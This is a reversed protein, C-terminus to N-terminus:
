ASQAANVLAEALKVKVQVLQAFTMRDFTAGPFCREAFTKVRDIDGKGMAILKERLESADDKKETREGYLKDTYVDSAIQDPDEGTPIAFTRLLAYKYAYTMAKGIGKDQTDVGTGSSAVVIQESPEDVNAIVYDVDIHTIRNIREGKATQVTESTLHTQMVTPFMVLGNKVMSERVTRTVKEETIARYKKGMGADVEDDKTLYQVDRMVDAIRQYINKGM